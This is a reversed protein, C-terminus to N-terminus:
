KVEDGHGKGIFLKVHIVLDAFTITLHDKQM